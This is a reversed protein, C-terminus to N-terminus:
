YAVLCSGLIRAGSLDSNRAPENTNADVIILTSSGSALRAYLSRKQAGYLPCITMARPAAPIGDIAADSADSTVPWRLDFTMTYGGAIRRWTSSFTEFTIRSNTPAWSPPSFYNDTDGGIQWNALTTNNTYEQIKYAGFPVGILNELIGTSGPALHIPHKPSHKQDSYGVFRINRALTGVAGFRFGYMGYTNPYGNLLAGDLMTSHGYFSAHPISPNIADGGDKPDFSNDYEMSLNYFHNDNGLDHIKGDAVFDYVSLSSAIATNKWSYGAIVNTSMPHIFSLEVPGFNPSGQEFYYGAVTTVTTFTDVFTNDFIGTGSHTNFDFGKGVCIAILNRFYSHWLAGIGSTNFQFGISESGIRSAPTGKTCGPIDARVTINEIHNGMSHANTSTIAFGPRGSVTPIIVVGGPESDGDDAVHSASDGIITLNHPNLISINAHYRGNPIRMTRGTAQAFSIAARFAPDCVEPPGDSKCGYNQPTVPKSQDFLLCGHATSNPHDGPAIVMGGDIRYKSCETAPLWSYTGSGTADGGYFGELFLLGAREMEEATYAQLVAMSPVHKMSVDAEAATVHLALSAVVPLTWGECKVM